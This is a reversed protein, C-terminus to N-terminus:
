GCPWQDCRWTVPVLRPPRRLAVPWIAMPRACSPPTIGHTADGGSPRSNANSGAISQPSLSPPTRENMTMTRTKDRGNDPGGVAKGGCQKPPTHYYHFYKEHFFYIIRLANLLFIEGPHLTRWGTDWRFTRARTRASTRTSCRRPSHGRTRCTGSDVHSCPLCPSYTM